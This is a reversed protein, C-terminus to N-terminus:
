RPSQNSQTSAGPKKKGGTKRTKGKRRATRQLAEGAAGQRSCFVMNTLHALGGQPNAHPRRDDRLIVHAGTEVPM